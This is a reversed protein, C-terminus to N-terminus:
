RRARRRDPIFSLDARRPAGLLPVFVRELARWWGMGDLVPNVFETIVCYRSNKDGRHHMVHHRPSQLVHFRQLMRVCLPVKFRRMHNWKHIQNANVGILVFLWIHWTLVGALWAALVIAVGAALLDWSSQLWTNQVFAAGHRHHLMNPKVIWSGFLPTNETGFTDEAWHVMGSVFDVLLVVAVAEVFM